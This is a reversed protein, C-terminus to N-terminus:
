IEAAIIITREHPIRVFTQGKKAFCEDLIAKRRESCKIDNGM